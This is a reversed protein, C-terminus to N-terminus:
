RLGWTVMKNEIVTTINKSNWIFPIMNYISKRDPKKWEAYKKPNDMNQM